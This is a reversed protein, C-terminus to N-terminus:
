LDRKTDNPRMNDGALRKLARDHIRFMQPKSYHMQQRVKKWSLGLQYRLRIMKMEEPPLDELERVLRMYLERFKNIDSCYKKELEDVAVAHEAMRDREEGGDALIKDYQVSHVDVKERLHKLQERMEYEKHYFQRVFLLDDKTM